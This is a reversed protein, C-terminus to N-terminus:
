HGTLFSLLDPTNTINPSTPKSKKSSFLSKMPTEELASVSLIQLIEYLSHEIKLDKKALAVLLYSCIAIWLQSRIANESRGYFQRIRLHQKM